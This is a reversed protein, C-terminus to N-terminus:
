YENSKITFNSNYENNTYINYELTLNNEKYLKYEEQKKLDDIVSLKYNSLINRFDSSNLFELDDVKINVYNIFKFPKPSVEVSISDITIEESMKKPGDLDAMIKMVGLHESLEHEKSKCSTNLISILITLILINNKMFIKNKQM